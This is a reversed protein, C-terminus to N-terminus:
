ESIYVQFGEWGVRIYVSSFMGLRSRYICKFCWEVRGGNALNTMADTKHWSDCPVRQSRASPGPNLDWVPSKTNQPHTTLTMTHKSERALLVCSWLAHFFNLREM